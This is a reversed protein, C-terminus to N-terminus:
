PVGRPNVQESGWSVALVPPVAPGKGGADRQKGLTIHPPPAQIGGQLLALFLWAQLAERNRKLEAGSEAPCTQQERLTPHKQALALRAM